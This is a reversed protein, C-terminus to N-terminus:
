KFDTLAFKISKHNGISLDNAADTISYISSLRFIQTLYIQKSTQKQVFELALATKSRFRMENVHTNQEYIVEDLPTEDPFDVSIHCHNHCFLQGIKYDVIEKNHFVHINDRLLFPNEQDAALDVISKIWPFPKEQETSEIDAKM